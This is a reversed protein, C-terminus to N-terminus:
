LKPVLPLKKYFRYVCWLVLLGFLGICISVFPNFQKKDVQKSKIEKKSVEKYEVEKEEKVAEKKNEVTLSEKIISTNNNKTTKRVTKKTNNLVTKTGDKEIVFSEKSADAPEYVTEETLTENKDDTKLTTTKKVNTDTKIETVSNDKIETKTEEKQNEINVKRAGCSCMSLLFMFVFCGYIVNLKKM